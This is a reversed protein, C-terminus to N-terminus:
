TSTNKHDIEDEKSSVSRDEQNQFHRIIKEVTGYKKLMKQHHSRCQENDREEELFESMRNFFNKTRRCRDPNFENLNAQLFFCYSLNEEESWKNYKRDSFAQVGKSEM